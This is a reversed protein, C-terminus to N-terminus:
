AKLFYLCIKELWLRACIKMIKICSFLLEGDGYKGQYRERQRRSDPLIETGKATTDQLGWPTGVEDLYAGEFRESNRTSM